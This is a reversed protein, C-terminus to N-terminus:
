PNPPSVRENLERNNMLMGYFGLLGHRRRVRESLWCAPVLGMGAALALVMAINNVLYDTGLGGWVLLCATAMILLMPSLWLGLWLAAALMAGVIREVM